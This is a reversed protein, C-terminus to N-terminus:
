CRAPVVRERCPGSGALTRGEGAGGKVVSDVQLYIPDTYVCRQIIQVLQEDWHTSTYEVESDAFATKFAAPTTILSWWRNQWCARRLDLENRINVCLSNPLIDVTIDDAEIWFPVNLELAADTSSEAAPCLIPRRSPMSSSM